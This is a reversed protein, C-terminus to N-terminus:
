NQFKATKTNILSECVDNVQNVHYIANQMPMASQIPGPMPNHPMLQQLQINHLATRNNMFFPVFQVGKIATKNNQKILTLLLMVTARNKPTGQYSVFNGLSYMIVTERNDKTLYTQLPQLVHPHSGIVALAGAELLQHAFEIQRIKPTFEYQEGWHPTVIIADVTTKLRAITALIWARDKKSNCLLVQHYPDDIGNTHEACALWAINFGNVHMIPINFDNSNKNKTGSFLLKYENLFHITSDIGASGADLAHNNATSVIDFGSNKLAAALSSPYSFLPFGSRNDHTIPGELNAYSINANHIYPLAEEWLSSYGQDFAKKQLPMHLLVDGVAAITITPGTACAATFTIKNTAFCGISTFFAALFLLIKLIKTLTSEEHGAYILTM